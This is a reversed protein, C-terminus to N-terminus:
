HGGPREDVEDIMPDDDEPRNEHPWLSLNSYTNPFVYGCLQTPNPYATSRLPTFFRSTMGTVLDDFCRSTARDCCQCLPREPDGRIEGPKGRCRWGFTYHSDIGKFSSM